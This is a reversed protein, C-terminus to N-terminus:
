HSAPRPVRPRVPTKSPSVRIPQTGLLMGSCNLAIIASEAMAFEVFAIRTSHVQDGLLRLRMVEGCASEFFNKVEAQSVKKDINTCYITRACMEREDDSRPLFTPNVPLIATKSPLVRVPYYGLVTGGLNLATRAGYEDAFEVFAFRLVSHPDGCIRCDIVQGCSSFLAALREDTVHQDIESVYVTRRISDERQAKLSRGSVRRRGQNFSNRRRRSNLFNENASPKTSVLFQTPSLQNFGQFGHDHNPSYSSPFFEKALPNLKTFMDVLKQVSFESEAKPKSDMKNADAPIEAVAAM